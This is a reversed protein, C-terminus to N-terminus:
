QSRQNKVPEPFSMWVFVSRWELLGREMCIGFPRGRKEEKVGGKVMGWFGSTQEGGRGPSLQM